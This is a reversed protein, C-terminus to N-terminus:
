RSYAPAGGGYGGGGGGYSDRSYGGGGGGYSDRGGYDGGYRFAITFTTVALTRTEIEIACSRVTVQLLAM